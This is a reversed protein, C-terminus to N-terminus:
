EEVNAEEVIEEPKQMFKQLVRSMFSLVKKDIEFVKMVDMIIILMTPGLLFGIAGWAYVGFAMGVLMLLPHMKLSKSLIAPELFRRIISMAAIGIVLVIVAFYNGHLFSYIAVPVMTASIGLVPLFDIVATVLALIVAYDTGALFFVIWAEVATIILLALYGGLANFLTSSLTNILNMSKVRFQRNPVNKSYFKLVRPADNIFYYGSLIICIVVFIGYPISSIMGLISNMVGSLIDPLTAIVTNGTDVIITRISEEMGPTIFGGNDVSFKSILGNAFESANFNKAAEGLKIIAKNAQNFLAVLALIITIIILVLLIGYIITTARRVKKRGEENKVTKRCLREAIARSTKALLFGILFPILIVFLQVGVYLLGVIIAFMLIFKIMSIVTAKDRNYRELDTM